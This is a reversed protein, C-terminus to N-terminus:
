VIKEIEQCAINEFPPHKVKLTGDRNGEGCPPFPLKQFTAHFVSCQLYKGEANGPLVRM